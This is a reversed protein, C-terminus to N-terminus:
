PTKPGMGQLLVKIVFRPLVTQRKWRWPEKWLRYLWELHLERLRKPARIVIGALADFSGGVGISVTALGPHEALWYEQRPAGLGVLLVDPQFRLIEELVRTEEALSFYGHHGELIIGPYKQVVQKIAKEVVGPKGGLFFLRWQQDNAVPFISQVLDIGTVREQVPTGLRRAAWVVGIGDATVVDASNILRKLGQNYGSAYIMEPNATVVRIKIQNEVSERIKEVTEPMSYTDVTIGLIDVRM